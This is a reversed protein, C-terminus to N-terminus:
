CCSCYEEPLGCEHCEDKSDCEWGGEMSGHDAYWKNAKWAPWETTSGVSDNESEEDGCKIEDWIARMQLFANDMFAPQEWLSKGSVTWGCVAAEVADQEEELQEQYRQVLGAIGKVFEGDGEPNELANKAWAEIESCLDSKEGWCRYRGCAEIVDYQLEQSTGRGELGKRAWQIVLETEAANDKVAQREVFDLVDDMSSMGKCKLWWAAGESGYKDISDAGAGEM